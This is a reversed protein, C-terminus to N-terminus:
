TGSSINCIDNNINTLFGRHWALDQMLEDVEIVCVCLCVCVCLYIYVYIYLYM